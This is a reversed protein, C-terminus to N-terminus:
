LLVLGKRIGITVAETRSAAGLKSLISAVHFKVTHESINLKWAIIKNAAGEAMLSLVELERATLPPAPGAATGAPAASVLSELEGPDIVALGHAAAEVAALIEAPPADPPLVARVGLRLADRTWVPPSGGDLLVYAPPSGDPAAIEGPPISALVVDPRLEEVASLDPFSGVVELGPVSRALEELGLRAAPSPAAILLRTV